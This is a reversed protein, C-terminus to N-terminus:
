KLGDRAQNLATKKMKNVNKDFKSTASNVRNTNLAITDRTATTIINSLEKRNKNLIDILLDVTISSDNLDNILQVVPISQAGEAKARLLLPKIIALIEESSDVMEYLRM